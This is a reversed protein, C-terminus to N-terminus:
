KALGNYFQSTNYNSTQSHELLRNRRALLVIVLGMLIIGFLLGSIIVVFVTKKGASSPASKDILEEPEGELTLTFSKDKEEPKKDEVIVVPFSKGINVIFQINGGAEKQAIPRFMAVIRYRTGVSIDKPVEIRVPVEVESGFPVDYDKSSEILNAIEQGKILEPRIITDSDGGVVNRLLFFTEKIEGQKMRLPYNEGYLTAVSFASAFDIFFLILIIAGYFSVRKKM